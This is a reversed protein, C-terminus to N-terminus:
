WRQVDLEPVREFERLNRTILTLGRSRATAAILLDNPGIPLGLRMLETRILGYHVAADDDFPVTPIHEFFTQLKRLNKATSRSRRAGFELEARVVSSTALEGPQKSSVAQYIGQDSGNLWAICINTDLLFKM